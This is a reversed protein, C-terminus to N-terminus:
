LKSVHPSCGPDGGPSTPSALKSKHPNTPMPPLPGPVGNDGKFTDKHPQPPLPLHRGITIRDTDAHIGTTELAEQWYQDCGALGLTIALTLVIKTATKM